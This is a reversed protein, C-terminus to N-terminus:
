IGVLERVDNTNDYRRLQSWILMLYLSIQISAFNKVAYLQGIVSEALSSMNKAKPPKVALLLNHVSTTFKKLATPHTLLLLRILNQNQHKDPDLAPYMFKQRM